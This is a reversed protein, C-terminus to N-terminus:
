AAAPRRATGVIMPSEVRPVKPVEGRFVSEVTLPSAEIAELTARNPYCGILPYPFPRRDQKAAVEPDASRVHELFLLRGGPRLVRAIEALVSQEEAVSCLAFTVVATDFSSDPLPLQEASADLIEVARDLGGARARLRRRMHPDPEVLVLRTVAAPYHPLNLGTGAGIEVTAGDARALLTRRRERLGAREAPGNITDYAAAFCHRALEQFM